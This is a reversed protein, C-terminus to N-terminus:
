IYILFQSNITGYIAFDHFCQTSDSYSFDKFTNRWWKPMISNFDTSFTTNGNLSCIYDGSNADFDTQAYSIRQNNIKLVSNTKLKHNIWEIDSRFFELPTTNIPIAEGQLYGQASLLNINKDLYLVAEAFISKSSPIYINEIQTFYDNQLKNLNLYAKTFVTNKSANIQYDTHFLWAIAEKQFLIGNIIFHDDNRPSLDATIADFVHNNFLVTKAVVEISHIKM